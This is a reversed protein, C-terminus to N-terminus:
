RSPTAATQVRSSTTTAGSRSSRVRFPSGDDIASVSRLPPLHCVEALELEDVVVKTVGLGKQFASVAEKESAGDTIGMQGFGGLEDDM